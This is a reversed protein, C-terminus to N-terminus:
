NQLEARRIWMRGSDGPKFNTADIVFLISRIEGLPPRPTSTAGHPTFDDFFITREEHAPAVYISRSWRDGADGIRLQISIRMPREGRLTLALRDHAAIGGPTDFALAAVRGPSHGGALGYRLRLEAGGVMTVTEVVALSTPDHEARWGETSSGNFMPERVTAGPRAAARAPEAPGRVYIPNSRIWPLSTM